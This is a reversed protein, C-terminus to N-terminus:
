VITLTGGPTDLEVAVVGSTAAREFSVNLGDGFLERFRKAAADPNPDGLRVTRIGRAKSPHEVSAEAPHQGPPVQWEIVFPLVSPDGPTVLMQSRWRLIVGDPRQRAGAIPAALQLRSALLHERLPDLDDTRVAWTAFTRGDEVARSIRRTTPSRQGEAQDVVAILELYTSGLPIIMNATGVGPHRGGQLARLGYTTEFTRAAEALDAVAVLIHDTSVRPRSGAM